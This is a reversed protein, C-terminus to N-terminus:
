AEGVIGLHTYLVTYACASLRQRGQRTNCGQTCVHWEHGHMSPTYMSSLREMYVPQTPARARKTLQPTVQSPERAASCTKVADDLLHNRSAFSGHVAVAVAEARHPKDTACLVDVFSELGFDRVKM